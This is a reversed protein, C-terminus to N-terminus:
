DYSVFHVCVLFFHHSAFIKHLSDLLIETIELGEVTCFAGILVTVYGLVYKRTESAVPIGFKCEAVATPLLKAVM